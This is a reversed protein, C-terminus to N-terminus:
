EPFKGTRTYYLFELERLERRKLIASQRFAVLFGQYPIFALPRAKHRSQAIQSERQCNKLRYRAADIRLLLEKNTM